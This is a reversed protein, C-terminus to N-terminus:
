ASPSQTLFKSLLHVPGSTDMTSFYKALVVKLFIETGGFYCLYQVTRLPRTTVLLPLHSSLLCPLPILTWPSISPAPDSWTVQPETM